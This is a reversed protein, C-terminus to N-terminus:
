KEFYQITALMKINSSNVNVGAGERNRVKRSFDYRVMIGMIKTSSEFTPVHFTKWNQLTEVLGRDTM